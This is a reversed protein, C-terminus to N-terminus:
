MDSNNLDWYHFSEVGVHYLRNYTYSDNIKVVQILNLYVRRNVIYLLYETTNSSSM